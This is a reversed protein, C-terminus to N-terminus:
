KPRDYEFVVACIHYDYVEIFLKVEEETFWEGHIVGHLTILPTGGRPLAEREGRFGLCAVFHPFDRKWVRTRGDWEIRIDSPIKGKFLEERYGFSNNLNKVM